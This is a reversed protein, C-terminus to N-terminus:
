KEGAVGAMRVRGRRLIKSDIDSDRTRGDRGSRGYRNGSGGPILVFLSQLELTTVVAGLVMGKCSKVLFLDEEQREGDVMMTAKATKGMLKEITSAGGVLRDERGCVPCGQVERGFGVVSVFASTAGRGDSVEQGPRVEIPSM